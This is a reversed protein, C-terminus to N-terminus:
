HALPQQEKKMVERKAGKQIATVQACCSEIFGVTDRNSLFLILKNNRKQFIFEISELLNNTSFMSM